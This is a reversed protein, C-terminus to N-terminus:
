RFAKFVIEAVNKPIGKVSQLEILTAEKLKKVSGFHKLLIERRKPGVGAVKDLESQITRKTRVKRNYEIAFRHAEDRVRKLLLLGPSSKSITLPEKKGPLYIEEFKKALGIIKQDKFGLNGIEKKVSSLQGKGGDVMLLDPPDKKEEGLRYFYRGVVERMMAFDDQGKVTKIKYHRYEKKFPKGNTFYVLSGVADTEGTNSIDVCAITRPSSPMHLDEQLIQVSKSVRDKYIKKQILLEDLLLRANASAMDVMKLKEGKQPSFLRVKKKGNGSDSKKKTLWRSILNEEPLDMSLYLEDPLNPQRNYYQKIFGSLFEDDREEPESSLQFDQRGILIGERVQLIVAVMDRSERAFAIVDRNVVKNADVKQKQRVSQLATIQDRTEAAKEFEMDESYKEMKGQLKDILTQGKGCLSLLVSDVLEAYDEQTQFDECPGGCRGLQYDLCVKQKNGKPHPITLNCSRIKFMRTLFRVTRRMGTANTYPGFYRAGDNDLRRVILVRPFSENVTVKVYPFHKDDRLDVNYRPKHERILNAELILAEIENDTVMLEVDDINGVLRVTKPDLNRKSQFYSRVRNKLNKAKGIYIIKGKNNKFQYVGPAKPLNELKIKLKNESNNNM